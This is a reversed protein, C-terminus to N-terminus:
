TVDGGDDTRCCLAEGRDALCGEIADRIAKLQEDTLETYNEMFNLIIMARKRDLESNSM